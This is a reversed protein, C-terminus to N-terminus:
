KAIALTSGECRTFAPEALLGQEVVGALAAHGGDRPHGDTLYYLSQFDPATAFAPTADFFQVGHKRAVSALASSIAFPDVGPPESKSAAMAAQAREPVYVLLVPVGAPETEATIRGLLDGVDDVRHRWVASLPSRVYDAKDGNLLFARIQFAPDRYLYSQMLLFLRSERLVNVASLLNFPQPPARDSAAPAPDKLHTVDYPGITMVIASPKLALAEPIRKDIRDVDFPETGLNQFDVLGGCRKSLVASARAAFSDSYNVLAGRATSSGVVAVRLAGPPRAACSEETRYGCDNFRQTTWPGEWEKTQSVCMPRYRAGATTVYECPEAADDQVFILRAAAEGGAALLLITGLFILPLLLYDRRPLRWQPAPRPADTARDAPMASSFHNM